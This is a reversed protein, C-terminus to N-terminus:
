PNIKATSVIKEFEDKYNMNETIMVVTKDRVPFVIAVGTHRQNDIQGEFRTASIGSVQVGKSTVKKSKVLADYNKIVETQSKKLLLMKFGQTNIAGQAQNDVVVNPNSLMELQTTPDVNKNAVLSWSKPIQLQFGGDLQDATYVRYPLDNAKRNEEADQKKQAEVAKTVAAKVKVNLNNVADERETYAYVALVGFLVMGIGLFITLLLHLNVEGRQNM